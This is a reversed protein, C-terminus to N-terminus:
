FVSEGGLIRRLQYHDSCKCDEAGIDQRLRGEYDASDRNIRRPRRLFVMVEIIQLSTSSFVPVVHINVIYRRRSSLLCVHDHYNVKVNKPVATARQMVRISDDYNRSYVM